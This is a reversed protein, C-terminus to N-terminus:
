RGILETRYQSDLGIQSPPVSVIRATVVNPSKKVGSVPTQFYRKEIAKMQNATHAAIREKPTPLHIGRDARPHADAHEAEEGEGHDEVRRLVADVAHARALELRRPADEDRGDRHQEEVVDPELERVSGAVLHLVRLLVHREGDQAGRDPREREVACRDERDQEHERRRLDGAQAAEDVGDLVTNV